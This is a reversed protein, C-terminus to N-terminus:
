KNTVGLVEGHRGLFLTKKRNHRRNKVQLEFRAATHQESRNAGSPEPEHSNVQALQCLILFSHIFSHDVNQDYVFHVM